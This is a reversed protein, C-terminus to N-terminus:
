ILRSDGGFSSPGWAVVRGDTSNEIPVVGFEAHGRNVEEFVSAITNVDNLDASEGFREIAAIHTFSFRPGLYAVRQM